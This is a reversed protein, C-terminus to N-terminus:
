GQGSFVFRAAKLFWGATQTLAARRTPDIFYVAAVGGCVAVAIWSGLRGLRFTNM